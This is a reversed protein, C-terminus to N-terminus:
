FDAFRIFNFKEFIIFHIIFPGFGCLNLIIFIVLSQFGILSIQVLFVGLAFVVIRVVILRGFMRLCRGVARGM